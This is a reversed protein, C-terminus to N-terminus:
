KQGAQKLLNTIQTGLKPDKMATALMDTMATSQQQEAGSLRQGDQNLKALTQGAINTNLQPNITKLQNINRQTVTLDAKKQESDYDANANKTTTQDDPDQANGYEYVEEESSNNSVISSYEKMTLTTTGKQLNLINELVHHLDMDTKADERAYELMRIFLPVDMTITDIPNGAEQALMEQLRREISVKEAARALEPLISENGVLRGKFPPQGKKTVTAPETGRVQDGPQQKPHAQLGAFPMDESVAALWQRIDSM